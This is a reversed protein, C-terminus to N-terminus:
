KSIMENLAMALNFLPVSIRCTYLKIRGNRSLKNVAGVPLPGKMQRIMEKRQEACCASKRSMWIKLLCIHIYEALADDYLDPYKERYYDARAKTAYVDDLMRPHFDGRTISKETMRYFYMPTSDYVIKDALEICKYCTKLDEFYEGVPFRITDFISKQWLKDCASNTIKQNRTVERLAERRSFVQVQGAQPHELNYYEGTSTMLGCAAIEADHEVLLKYLREYMDPAIWDDADIFGVYEGAAIDLGANRASSPGGNEKHIVRIRCDKQALANCIEGSKDKSGDNVLIIELNKYTQGCISAVCDAIYAEAEYVPVIVSIFPQIM